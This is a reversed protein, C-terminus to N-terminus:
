TSSLQKEHSKCHRPESLKLACASCHMSTFGAPYCSVQLYQTTGSIVDDPLFNRWPDRARTYSSFVGFYPYQGAEEATRAPFHGSQDTGGGLGFESCHFEKAGTTLLEALNLGFAQLESDYQQINHEFDKLVGNYHPYCSIGVFDVANYLQQIAPLNYMATIVNGPTCTERGCLKNYNTSLGIRVNSAWGQNNGLIQQKAWPLLRMHEVPYHYVMASMEGQLAFWVLTNAMLANAMAATLPMLMIETYSFGGYKALPNILMANRWQGTTGGDDLHPTFAISFGMTDVAYKLCPKFAETWREIIDQTFMVCEKSADPKYCYYDPVLDENNDVFYQNVMFNIKSSGTLGARDVMHECRSATKGDIYEQETLESLRFLSVTSSLETGWAQATHLGRSAMLSVALIVALWM